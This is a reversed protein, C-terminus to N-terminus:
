QCSLNALIKENQFTTKTSPQYVTNSILIEGSGELATVNETAGVYCGQLTLPYRILNKITM